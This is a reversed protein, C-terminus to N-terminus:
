DGGFMSTCKDVDTGDVLRKNGNKDIKLICVVDGKTHIIHDDSM